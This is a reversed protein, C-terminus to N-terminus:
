EYIIAGDNNNDAVRRVELQDLVWRLTEVINGGSYDACFEVAAECPGLGHRRFDQASKAANRAIMM